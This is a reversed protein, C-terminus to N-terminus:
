LFDQMNSYIEVLYLEAKEFPYCYYINIMRFFVRNDVLRIPRIELNYSM